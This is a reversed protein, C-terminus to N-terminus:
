QDVDDVVEIERLSALEQSVRSGHSALEEAQLLARLPSTDRHNIHIVIKAAPLRVKSSLDLM